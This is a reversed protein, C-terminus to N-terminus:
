PLQIAVFFNVKGRRVLLSLAEGSHFRSLAGQFGQVTRVPTRNVEKILDGSQLGADDAPSGAQVNTIVVGSENTYGLQRAIDPTLTQVSIGLKESNKEEPAGEPTTTGKIEKPREALVVTLEVEKGDRLVTITATSDPKAAAVMNRLETSDKVKQGNFAIIVDGRKIGAKDAPGDPTVDAVLAGQTSKLGMAKALAEDIDQPMLALYGRTVKGYKLLQDMVQRAMNIPIAFGIGVNGGSPTNIATNIAIVNGDLDALAGGSNGPNIAADTQIFDEYDALHVESRGKASIIGATVTHMLQFPNGVAIVWQGVKVKDSDGLAAAPLGRAEIKVLAVDTQPDAGIVKAPFKEQTGLVVTLKDAGQVVHNNTLIYGDQTVIVGSGLSRVTQKEGGRPVTGFFRKFFDEGFFDRFADDPMGFPNSTEIVQEAFIPVVSPNIKAAADEFATSFERLLSRAQASPTWEAQPSAKLTPEEKSSCFASVLGFVAALFFITTLFLWSRNSIRM